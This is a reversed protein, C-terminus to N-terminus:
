NLIGTLKSDRGQLVVWHIYLIWGPWAQAAGPHHVRSVVPVLWYSTRTIVRNHTIFVRTESWSAELKRGADM